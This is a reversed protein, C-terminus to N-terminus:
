ITRRLWLRPEADGDFMLGAVASPLQPDTACRREGTSGDENSREM